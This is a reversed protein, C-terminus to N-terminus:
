GTHTHRRVSDLGIKNNRNTIKLTPLKIIVSLETTFYMFEFHHAAWITIGHKKNKPLTDHGHFPFTPSVAVSRSLTLCPLHLSPVVEEFKREDDHM